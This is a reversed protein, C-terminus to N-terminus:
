VCGEMYAYVFVRIQDPEQKLERVTYCGGSSPIVRGGHKPCFAPFSVPGAVGLRHVPGVVTTKRLESRHRDEITVEQGQAPVVLRVGEVDRLIAGASRVAAPSTPLLQQSDGSTRSTNGVLTVGSAGGMEIM